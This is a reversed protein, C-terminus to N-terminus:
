GGAARAIFATLREVDESTLRLSVDGSSVEVSGDDFVGFRATSGNRRAAKPARAAREPKAAGAGKKRKYVGKPMETGGSPGVTRLDGKGDAALVPRMRPTEAGEEEDDRHEDPGLLSVRRRGPPASPPAGKLETASLTV